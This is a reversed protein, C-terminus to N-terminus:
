ILCAAILYQIKDNLALNEKAGGRFQCIGGKTRIYLGCRDLLKKLM